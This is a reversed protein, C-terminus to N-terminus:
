PANQMVLTSWTDNQRQQTASEAGELQSNELRLNNAEAGRRSGGRRIEWEAIVSATAGFSQGLGSAAGTDGAGAGRAPPAGRPGSDASTALGVRARTM